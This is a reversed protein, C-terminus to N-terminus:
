SAAQGLRYEVIWEFRFRGPKTVVTITAQGPGIREHLARPVNLDENDGASRWSDVTVYYYTSNKSRTTYKRSVAVAHATPPSLDLWGNLFLETGFGCVPFAFLSILFISILDRHSSARGKIMRAALWIFLALLPLSYRLSDRFLTGDDLAPYWNTGAIMLGIGLPLLVLPVAFAARKKAKWGSTDVRSISPQLVPLDKGLRALPPVAGTIFSADREEKLEFPSWQAVLSEDELKVSNFGLRFIERVAERSEPLAFVTSAFDPQESIIYFERDFERDGTQVESSLGLDKFFRDTRGEKSIEFKGPSSYHIGIMFYSPANKSGAFHRFYYETGQYTASMAGGSRTAGVAESLM